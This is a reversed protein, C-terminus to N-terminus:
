HFWERLAAAFQALFGLFVLLLAIRTFGVYQDRRAEDAPPYAYLFILATGIVNLGLGLLHLLTPSM